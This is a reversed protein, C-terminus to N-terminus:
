NRRHHISHRLQNATRPSKHRQAHLQRQLGAAAPRRRAGSSHTQAPAPGARKDSGADQRDRFHSPGPNREHTARDDSACTQSQAPSPPARDADQIDRSRTPSAIPARAHGAVSQPAADDHAHPRICPPAHAAPPSRAPAPHSPSRSPRAADPAPFHQNRPEIPELPKRMKLIHRHRAAISRHFLRPPHRQPCQM